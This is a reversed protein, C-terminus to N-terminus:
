KEIGREKRAKTSESAEGNKQQQSFCCHLLSSFSFEIEDHQTKDQPVLRSRKGGM